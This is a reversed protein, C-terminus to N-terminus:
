PLSTFIESFDPDTAYIDEISEFGLLKAELTTILTYRRSLADAVVNTKGTKYKIVFAFSDIFAVWRAHRKSLKTQSKLHKLAKHDTHIVFEKPRLYYQWTELTRILAYHEKDYTSYTLAAGNFKESFYALPRGEQIM